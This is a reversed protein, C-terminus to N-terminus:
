YEDESDSLDEQDGLELGELDEGSAGGIEAVSRIRMKRPHTSEMESIENKLYERITEDSSFLARLASAKLEITGDQDNAELQMTDVEWATKAPPRNATPRTYEPQEEAGVDDGAESPGGNGYADPVFDIYDLFGEDSWIQFFTQNFTASGHVNLDGGRSKM